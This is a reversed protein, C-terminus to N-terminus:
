VVSRASQWLNNELIQIKIQSKGCNHHKTKTIGFMANIIHWNHFFDEIM